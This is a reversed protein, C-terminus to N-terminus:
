PMVEIDFDAITDVVSRDPCRSETTMVYRYPGPTLGLPQPEIYRHQDFSRM